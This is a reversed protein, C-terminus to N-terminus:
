KRSAEPASPTNPYEYSGFLSLSLDLPTFPGYVGEGFFVGSFFILLFLPFFSSLCPPYILPSSLLPLLLFSSPASTVSAKFLGHRTNEDECERGLFPINLYKM